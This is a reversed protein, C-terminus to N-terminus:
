IKVQSAAKVWGWGIASFGRRLVGACGVQQRTVSTCIAAIM